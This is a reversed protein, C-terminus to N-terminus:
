KPLRQAGKGGVGRSYDAEVCQKHWREQSFLEEAKLSCAEMKNSLCVRLVRSPSRERTQTQTETKSLFWSGM